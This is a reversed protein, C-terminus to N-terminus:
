FPIATSKELIDKKVFGTQTRGQEDTFAVKIFYTTESIANFGTGKSVGKLVKPKKLVPKAYIFTSDTTYFEYTFNEKKEDAFDFEFRHPSHFYFAVGFIIICFLVKVSTFYQTPKASQAALLSEYKERLLKEKDFHKKVLEAIRETDGSSVNVKAPGASLPVDINIAGDLIQLTKDYERKKEPNSLIEIAENINKLMEERFEDVTNTASNYKASVNRYGERIQDTTAGIEIGLIEYYNKFAM